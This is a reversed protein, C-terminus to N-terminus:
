IIPESNHYCEPNKCYLAEGSKEQPEGDSRAVTQVFEDQETDSGCIPCEETAPSYDHEEEKDGM